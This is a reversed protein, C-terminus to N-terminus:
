KQPIIEVVSLWYNWEKINGRWFNDDDNIEPEDNFSIEIVKLHPRVYKINVQEIPNNIINIFTFSKGGGIKQNFIIDMDKLFDVIEEQEDQRYAVFVIRNAAKINNVVSEFRNSMKAYFYPFYDDVENEIPFDHMSIMNTKTDQIFRKGHKEKKLDIRNIFFDKFGSSFFNSISNLQYCMMWDFPSSQTRLGLRRIADASRCAPGLSMVFDAKIPSFNKLIFHVLEYKLKNKMSNGFPDCSVM